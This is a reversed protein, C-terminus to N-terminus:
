VGEGPCPLSRLLGLVSEYLRFPDFAKGDPAVCGPGLVSVATAVDDRLGRLLQHSKEHAGAVVAVLDPREDRARRRAGEWTLAAVVALGRGDFSFARLPHREDGGGCEQFILIREV